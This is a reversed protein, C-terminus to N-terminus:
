EVTSTEPKGTSTATLTPESVVDIRIEQQTGSFLRLGAIRFRSTSKVAKGDQEPVDVLRVDSHARIAGPVSLLSGADGDAETRGNLLGGLRSLPGAMSGLQEALTGTNATDPKTPDGSGSLLSTLEGRGSPLAPLVNVASVDALSTEANAIPQVCPGLRKDWRAHVSGEVLGPDLLKSAPSSPPSLESTTPQEHDPLATQALSGPLQPMSGGVAFGLPASEAIAHEQGLFAESNAEAVAIGMGAEILSQKPLKDNFEPDDIISDGPVADPLVRLMGIGTGAGAVVPGPRPVPPPQSAPPQGPHEPEPIPTTPPTSEAVAAPLTLCMAALSAASCAALRRLPRLRM